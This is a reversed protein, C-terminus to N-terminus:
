VIKSPGSEKSNRSEIILDMIQDLASLADTEESSLLEGRCRRIALEHRGNAALELIKDADVESM